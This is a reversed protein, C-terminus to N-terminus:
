KRFKMTAELQDEQSSSYVAQLMQPLTTALGQTGLDTDEDSDLGDEDDGGPQFNRRKAISEERQMTLQSGEMVRRPVLLPFFCFTQCFCGM